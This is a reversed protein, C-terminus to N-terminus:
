GYHVRSRFGRFQVFSVGMVLLALLFAQASALGRFRTGVFGDVFVSYVLNETAQGPGGMTLIDIEGFAQFSIIVNIVVLFLLTPSLLPLTVYRIRDWTGAGDVKAADYYSDDIQQLGALAIIVNFGLQRWVVAVTVAFLAWTRTNLWNPGDIGFAGLWTNIHGVVPNYLWRFLVGAVASSIVVPVFILMRHAWSLRRVPYSLLLAIVVALGIGVPVTGLMFYISVLVNNWFEGSTLLRTYQDLGVFIEANGFPAVRNLSLRLSEVIPWYVFIALVVMTPALYWYAKLQSGRLRLPRKLPRTRTTAPQM